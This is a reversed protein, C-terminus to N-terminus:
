GVIDGTAGENSENWTGHEGGDYVFDFSRAHLAQVGSGFFLYAPGRRIACVDHQDCGLDFDGVFGSLPVVPAFEGTVVAWDYGHVTGTTGASITGTLNPSVGAFSTFTGDLESHVCFHNNGVAWVQIRVTVDTLAWVHGDTGVDAFHHLSETVDAVKAKVDPACQPTPDATARAVPQLLVLTAASAMLVAIHRLHHPVEAGRM